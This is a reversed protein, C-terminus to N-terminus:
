STSILKFWCCPPTNEGTKNQKLSKHQQLIYVNLMAIKKQENKM